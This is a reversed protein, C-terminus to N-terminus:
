TRVPALPPVHTRSSDQQTHPIRRLLLIIEALVLEAVSCLGISSPAAAPGADAGVLLM